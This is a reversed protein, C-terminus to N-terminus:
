SALGVLVAIEHLDVGDLREQEYESALPPPDFQAATPDVIDTGDKLLWWHRVNRVHGCVLRVNAEARGSMLIGQALAAEHCNGHPAYGAAIMRAKVLACSDSAMLM